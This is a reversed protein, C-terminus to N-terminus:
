EEAVADLGYATIADRLQAVVATDETASNWSRGDESMVDIVGTGDLTGALKISRIRGLDINLFTTKFTVCDDLFAFAYGCLWWM